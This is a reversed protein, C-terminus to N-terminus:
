PSCQSLLCETLTYNMILLYCICTCLHMIPCFFNEIQLGFRVGGFHKNKARRHLIYPKSLLMWFICILAILVIFVQIGFQTGGQEDGYVPYDGGDATGNSRVFMFMNILGILLSPANQLVIFSITEFKALFIILLMFPILAKSIDHSQHLAAFLLSITREYSGPMRCM